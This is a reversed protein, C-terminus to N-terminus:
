VANLSTCHVVGLSIRPHVARCVLRVARCIVLARPGPLISRLNPSALSGLGTSVCRNLSALRRAFRRRPNRAPSVAVVFRRDIFVPRLVWLGSPHSVSLRLVRGPGMSVAKSSVGTGTASAACSPDRLPAM